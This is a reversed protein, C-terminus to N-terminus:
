THCAAHDADRPDRTAHVDLFHNPTATTACKRTDESAESLVARLATPTAIYGQSFLMGIAHTM